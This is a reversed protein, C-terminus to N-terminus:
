KPELGYGSRVSRLAGKIHFGYPQSLAYIAQMDCLKGSPNM